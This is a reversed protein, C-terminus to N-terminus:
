LDALHSKNRSNMITEYSEQIQRFKQNAAQILYNPLGKPLSDVHCDKVLIRYRRKSHDDSD